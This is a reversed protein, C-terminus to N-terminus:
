NLLKKLMEKRAKDDTPIIKNGTLSRVKFPLPGFSKKSKVYKEIELSTISMMYKRIEKQDKTIVHRETTMGVLKGNVPSFLPGGSDGGCQFVNTEITEVGDNRTVEVKGLNEQIDSWTKIIEGSKVSWPPDECHGVLVVKQGLGIKSQSFSFIKKPKYNTAKLVCLDIKRQDGCGAFEINNIREENSTLFEVRYASPNQIADEIVHHNTVFIGKKSIFFGAGVFALRNKKYGRILLTSNIGDNIVEKQSKLFGASQLNVLTFLAILIKV